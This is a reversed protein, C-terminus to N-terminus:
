RELIGAIRRCTLGDECGPCHSRGDGRGRVCWSNFCGSERRWNIICLDCRWGANYSGTQNYTGRWGAGNARGKDGASQEIKCQDCGGRHGHERPIGFRSHRAWNHGKMMTLTDAFYDKRGIRLPGVKGSRLGAIIEGTQPDVVDGFANVAVLAGLIVGGGIDMSATGVGSKM